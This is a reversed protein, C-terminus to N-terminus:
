LIEGQGQRLKLVERYNVTIEEDALISKSCVLSLVGNLFKPKSNPNLSHNTYRGAISRKDKVRMPAIFDNSCFGSEAFLGIGNIPSECLYVDWDNNLTVDESEILELMSKDTHGLDSTLLKVDQEDIYQNYEQITECTLLELAENHDTTKCAFCNLWRVPTKTYAAKQNGAPAIFVHPAKFDTKNGSEDVVTLEGELLINITEHKHIRGVILAHAPMIMERVYSGNAFYHKLHEPANVDIPELGDIEDAHRLTDIMGAMNVRKPPLKDISFQPMLANM